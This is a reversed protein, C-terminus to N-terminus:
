ELRQGPGMGRFTAQVSAGLRHYFVSRFGSESRSWEARLGLTRSDTLPRAFQVAVMSGTDQDSPAGRAEEPGTNRYIQHALACYGQVSGGGWPSSLVVAARASRYDYAPLRSDNWALGASIRAVVSGEFSGDAELGWRVDERRPEWLLGPGPFTHYSGIVAIRGSGSVGQWAAGVTGNAGHRDLVKWEERRYRVLDGGGSAAFDWGGGLPIAVRSALGVELRGPELYGPLPLPDSLFRGKQWSMVQWRFRGDGAAGAVTERVEGAVEAATIPDARVARGGLSPEVTLRVDGALSRSYLWSAGVKPGLGVLREGASRFGMVSTGVVAERTVVEPETALGPGPLGRLRALQDQLRALSALTLSTSGAGDRGTDDHPRVHALPVDAPSLGTIPCTSVPCGPDPDGGGESRNAPPMGTEDFLRLNGLFLRLEGQLAYRKMLRAHEEAVIGALAVLAATGTAVRDAAESSLGTGGLTAVEVELERLRTELVYRDRGDAARAAERDAAIGVELAAVLADRADRVAPAAVAVEEDLFAIRDALDQATRLLERQQRGSGGPLSAVEHSVAVLQLAAEDRAAELEALRDSRTSYVVRLLVSDAATQAAAPSVVLGGVLIPFLWKPFRRMM